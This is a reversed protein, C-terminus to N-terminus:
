DMLFTYSFGLFFSVYFLNCYTPPPCLCHYFETILVLLVQWFVTISLNYYFCFSAINDLLHENLVSVYVILHLFISKHWAYFINIQFIDVLFKSQYWYFFLASHSSDDSLTTIYKQFFFTFCYTNKLIYRPTHGWIIYAIVLIQYSSVYM